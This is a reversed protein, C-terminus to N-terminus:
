NKEPDVSFRRLAHIQEPPVLKPAETHDCPTLPVCIVEDRVMIEAIAAAILSALAQNVQHVEATRCFAGPRSRSAVAVTWCPEGKGSILPADSDM